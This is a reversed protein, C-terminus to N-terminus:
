DTTGGSVVFGTPWGDGLSISARYVRTSHKVEVPSEYVSQRLIVKMVPLLGCAKTSQLDGYVKLAPEVGGARAKAISEANAQSTCLIWNQVTMEKGFQDGDRAAPSVSLVGPAVAEAFAPVAAAITFAACLAVTITKQMDLGKGLNGM